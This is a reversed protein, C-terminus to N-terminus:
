RRAQLRAWLREWWLRIRPATDFQDYHHQTLTEVIQREMVRDGPAHPVKNVFLGVIAPDIHEFLRRVRQLDARTDTQADVVLVVQGVQAALMQADASNELPELDFLILDYESSWHKIADDLRAMRHPSPSRTSGGTIIALMSGKWPCQHILTDLDAGALYDALGPKSSGAASAQGYAEVVLVRMGLEMLAQAVDRVWPSMEASFSVSTFAWAAQGSRTQNRM